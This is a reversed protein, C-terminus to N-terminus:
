STSRPPGSLTAVDREEFTANALGSRRRRPRRRPSAGASFDYGVFRSAPYAAAMLNIAHGSGCGVDAVDIGAALREPLGAVLPLVTDILAPRLGHASDEAMLRQFDPFKRTRCGAATASRTSSTARSRASCRSTSPSRRWTARAPPAPSRPPTSRRSGTPGARRTTARRHRRHGDGRAVRARLAGAARRGGAIAASDAPELGAMTDFLGTRHGVSVMLALMGDNVVGLVRGAFAEARAQDLEQTTMAVETGALDRDEGVALKGRIAVATSRAARDAAPRRSTAAPSRPSCGPSASRRRPGAPVPRRGPHRRAPRRRHARRAARGVPLGLVGFMGTWWVVALYDREAGDITLKRTVFDGEQHHPFATTCMVPTLLADYDAFWEAWTRRCRPAAATSRAALRRARGAQADGVEPPSSVSVAPGILRSFLTSSSPRTSRRACRPSRRGPPARRTPPPACCTSWRGSARSRRTTSGRRWGRLRGAVDVTPQPCSSAGRRRTARCRARRAGVLLLDLDAASRAMPGFVNIDADTTGAASATSTAASPCSGTARSTASRAAATRRSACRAASTPAWSSAPSGPPSPSPRAARRAAPSARRTGRTTADHRVDRQLEARRGVLAAPQDQRVRDGRGRAAPRRGARRRRPRPRGLEVAGGTSRIGPPRSRTRSRSRCATCRRCRTARARPADDAADAAACPGSPTSRSSRTSRATSATSATSTCSSCSGAPSRAPARARRRPRHRIPHGLCRGARQSSYSPRHSARPTYEPARTITSASEGRSPAGRREEGVVGVRRTRSRSGGSSRRAAGPEVEGGAGCVRRALAAASTASPSSSILRPGFHCAASPPTSGASRLSPGRGARSRAGPRTRRATRAATRWRRGPAASRRTGRGCGPSPRTRRRRRGAARRPARAVEVVDVRAARRARRRGRGRGRALHPDRGARGTAPRGAVGVVVREPGPEGLAPTGTRAGRRCRAAASRRRTSPRRGGAPRASRGAGLDDADFSKM